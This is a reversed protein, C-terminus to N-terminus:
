LKGIEDRIQKIETEKINILVDKCKVLFLPAQKIMELYQYNSVDKDSYYQADIRAKMSKKILNVEEFSKLDM